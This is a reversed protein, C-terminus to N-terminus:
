PRRRSAGLLGALAVGGAFVLDRWALVLTSMASALGGSVIADQFALHWPKM